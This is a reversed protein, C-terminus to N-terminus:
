QGDLRARLALLDAWADRKALPQRLLYAPHTMPLAPKGFATAWHGRLRLVGRQGLAAACPTNGMLVILDPDALAVHRAVFPLMMAIEDPNPDRNGPPRWPLVNAIYVASEPAPAHRSLGIAALMRDLLQGAPGVFPRGEIDEDRGPAEGLIMVRAGALGEAFVFSRAGKKLDCLDFGRQAEALAALDPAAAAAATALAVPDPGQPLPMAGPAAAGGSSAGSSAGALATGSAARVAGGAGGAPQPALSEPLDYRNLPADLMAEDVGMEIQWQMLAIAAHYDIQPAPQPAPETQM